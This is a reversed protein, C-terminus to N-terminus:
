RSKRDCMINYVTTSTIIGYKLILLLILLPIYAALPQRYQYGGQFLRCINNNNELKMDYHRCLICSFLSLNSTLTDRPQLTRINAASPPSKISIAPLPPFWDFLVCFRSPRVGVVSDFVETRDASWKWSWGMNSEYIGIYYLLYVLYMYSPLIDM